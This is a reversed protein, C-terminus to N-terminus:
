SRAGLNRACLRSSANERKPRGASVGRSACPEIRKTMERRLRDHGRPVRPSSCIRRMREGGKKGDAKQPCGMKVHRSYFYKPPQKVFCFYTIIDVLYQFRIAGQPEYLTIPSASLPFHAYSAPHEATTGQPTGGKRPVEWAAFISRRRIVKVHLQFGWIWARLAKELPTRRLVPTRGLTSCQMPAYAGGRM